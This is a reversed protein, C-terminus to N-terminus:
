HCHFPSMRGRFAIRYQEVRDEGENWGADYPTKITRSWGIFGVGERYVLHVHPYRDSVYGGSPFGYHVEQATARFRTAAVSWGHGASACSAPFSMIFRGPAELCQVESTSCDAFEAQWTPTVVKRQTFDVTM